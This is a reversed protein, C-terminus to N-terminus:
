CGGTLTSTSIHSGRGLSISRINDISVNTACVNIQSANILAGGTSALGDSTFLLQDSTLTSHVVIAGNHDDVSGRRIVSGGSTEVMWNAWASATTACATATASSTRCLAISTNRKIAESRALNIAAVLDNAQTTLRTSATVTR